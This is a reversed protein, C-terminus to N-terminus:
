PNMDWVPREREIYIYVYMCVYMCVYMDSYNYRKERMTAECLRLKTACSGSTASGRVAESRVRQSNWRGHTRSVDSALSQGRARSRDFLLSHCWLAQCHTESGFTGEHHNICYYLYLGM